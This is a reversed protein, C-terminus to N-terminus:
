NNNKYMPEPRIGDGM